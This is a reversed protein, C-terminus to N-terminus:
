QERSACVLHGPLQSLLAAHAEKSVTPCTSPWCGACTCSAPVGKRQRRGFVVGVCALKGRQTHACRATPSTSNSSTCRSFSAPLPLERSAPQTHRML